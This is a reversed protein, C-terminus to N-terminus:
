VSNSSSGGSPEGLLLGAREEKGRAAAAGAAASRGLTAPVSLVVRKGRQKATKRRHAELAASLKPDAELKGSAINAALLETIAEDRAEVKRGGGCIFRYGRLCCLGCCSSCSAFASVLVVTVVLWLVGGFQAFGCALAAARQDPTPAEPLSWGVLNRLSDVGEAVRLVSGYPAAIFGVTSLGGMMPGILAKVTASDCMSDYELQQFDYNEPLGVMSNFTSLRSPAYPVALTSLAHAHVNTCMHSCASSPFCMRDSYHKKITTGDGFQEGDDFTPPKYLYSRL